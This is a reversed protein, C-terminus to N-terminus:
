RNPIAAAAMAAATRARAAGPVLSTWGVAALLILCPEFFMRYRMSSFALATALTFTLSGLLMPWLAPERRLRRLGLLGGAFIVLSALGQAVTSAVGIHTHSSTDPWLAFINSLKKVYLQAARGPHERMFRQADRGLLHDRELNDPAADLAAQIRANPTQITRTDGTAEENNGLWLQRGGGASIFYWRHFVSHCRVIWPGVVLAYALAAIVAPAVWGRRSRHLVLAWGLGFGPLFAIANPRVLTEAGLLAGALAWRWGGGREWASYAVVLALSLMLFSFNETYQTSPLFAFIPHFAALALALLGARAGFLRVGLLGTLAVAATGVVAEVLRLTLLQTGFLHYVGAVFFPYGPPRDAMTAFNGHLYLQRAMALLERPDPWELQRPVTFVFFLRAALAGALLLLAVPRERADLSGLGTTRAPSEADRRVSRSGSPDHPSM